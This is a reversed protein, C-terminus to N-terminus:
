PHHSQGGVARLLLGEALLAHGKANSHVIRGQADILFMAAALGDLTDAFAAAETSKLDFVKSILVARRVHPIILRKRRRMEDDVVGHREHRFVGFAAVSTV